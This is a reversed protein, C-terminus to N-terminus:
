KLIPFVISITTGKEIESIISASGSLLKARKKINLLGNSNTAKELNFGKGDDRIQIQLGSKDENISVWINSANAHKIANNVAEQIIRYMNMGNISSFGRNKNVEKGFSFNVERKDSTKKAQNIFNSIRVQLDEFSIDDKNMAWITDRLEYITQTTFQSLGKLKKSIIEDKLRFTLNDITSIIFTLHSGINDHLDRSIRLRQEQLKNQTEIKTLAVKLENEKQLQRNKLKQQKYFLYGILSLIIALALSGFILQNKQKMKLESEALNARTEALQKEKEVVKYKTELNAVNKANNISFISDKLHLGQKLKESGLKHNKLRFYTEATNNYYSVVNNTLEPFEKLFVEGKKVYKLAIVPKKSENFLNILSSINSLNSSRGINLSDRERIIQKLVPIAKEHKNTLIYLNALTNLSEYYTQLVGAEKAKTVAKNVAEIAEIYDGKEKLNIAINNLSAPIENKVAYEERIKLSKRHYDLAKNVLGMEQYILGINNLYIGNKIIEGESNNNMELAKFFYKLAEQYEGKNWHFMGLNNTVMSTIVGFNNTKSIALAKEFYFRASDSKGSVDYFIGYTNTLESESFSVKKLKAEQIAKQLIKKAETPKNFIYYFSVKNLVRLRVSDNATEAVQLLSDIKREASQALFVQYSMFLLFLLSYKKYIM